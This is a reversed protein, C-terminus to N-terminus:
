YVETFVPSRTGILDLAYGAGRAVCGLPEDAVSVPLGTAEALLRDMGNLLAGGGALVLGREIIDSALEPPTMELAYIIAQIIQNLPEKLAEFVQNSNLSFSSPMGESLNRGHITMSDVQEVPYAVGITQKINEATAEGILVGFHRRVYHIIAEDFANGAVRLSQSYVMGGMSIVGIETTGGGIDVIMCGAPESIPLDAGLAAAMAEEILYVESAGAARASDCIAKREVQTAGCPVCIVIRSAGGLNGTSAQGIFYKLMKETLTFDAIVGDKMPRIVRINRPTRGLMKKAENGIAIPNAHGPHAEDEQIALISPENLVVGKNKSYILTNATGLDIALDHSLYRNFFGFM